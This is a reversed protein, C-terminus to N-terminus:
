VSAMANVVNERNLKSYHTSEVFDLGEKLRKAKTEANSVNDIAQLWKLTYPVISETTSQIANFLTDKIKIAEDLSLISDDYKIQLTQQLLQKEDETM